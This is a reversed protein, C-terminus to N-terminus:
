LSDLVVFPYLVDLVIMENAPKQARLAVYVLLWNLALYVLM